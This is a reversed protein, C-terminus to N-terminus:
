VRGEEQQKVQKVAACRYCRLMSSLQVEDQSLVRSAHISANPAFDFMTHVLELM